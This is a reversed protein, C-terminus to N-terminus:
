LRDSIITVFKEVGQDIIDILSSQDEFNPTPTLICEIIADPNNIDHFVNVDGSINSNLLSAYSKAIDRNRASLWVEFGGKDHLYVIAIKLGKDKLSKTSLSFYSMDMYGQYISSVDYHPYKKIFEARLKGLFEIIGKYAIQIEGQQLHHTYEEILENLTKM